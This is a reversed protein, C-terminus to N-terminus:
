VIGQRYLRKIRAGFIKEALSKNDGINEQGRVKKVLVDLTIDEEKQTNVSATNTQAVVEGINGSVTRTTAASDNAVPARVSSAVPARISPAPQRPAQPAQPAQPQPTEVGPVPAPAMVPALTPSATPPSVVPANTVVVPANTAVPTGVPANTAVTPSLPPCGCVAVIDPDASLPACQEPTLQGNVGLDFIVGCNAQSNPDGLSDLAISAGRNAMVATSSGCVYCVPNGQGQVHLLSEGFIITVVLTVAINRERLLQIMLSIM